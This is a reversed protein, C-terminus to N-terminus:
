STMPLTSEDLKTFLERKYTQFDV